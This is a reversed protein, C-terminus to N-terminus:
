SMDGILLEDIKEQPLDDWADLTRQRYQDMVEPTLSRWILLQRRLDNIFIRNARLWDGRTGTIRQILIRIEDIGEIESPQSLLAFHQNVGLDFPALAMTATVGIRESSAAQRFVHSESTAMIGLSTDSYNEFHEKLFNVVGTIDYASVTFPFILDYLDEEPKPIKWSRQIGPNASRSAKIAPYITSLLVTGMVVLITMIANTSSYNMTPVAVNAFTSVWSLVRAVTQGLLYGGMGGIIAYVAAEAFFLSAVHAPALGLSSFTYIERERDSVSGLMTAFIILGGLAMPILLDKLGSASIVTTFVFRFVEGHIGFYTPLRTVKAVRDAIAEVEAPDDPYITLSRVTAGVRKATEPGFIVVDDLGFVAFMGTEIEPPEKLGQDGGVQQPAIGEKGTSMEFDVPVVSSGELSKFGALDDSVTGAFILKQGALRVIAVGVDDPGFGLRKAIAETLFIGNEALLEFRSGPAFLERLHAQKEIDAPDIGIGAGIPVIRETTDNALLKDMSLGTKAAAQATQATPSMWYRPVVTAQGKLHGRLVEVVGADMANWFPDHIMMRPPMGTMPGKYSRRNDYSSGFSAFTLITFTLLVVTSATLFTRLPRRRMTSIGMMVAAAMTSIRSVDTSHVTQGLGQFAKVTSQLKRILLFIVLSSLLLIAFALFIIIPTTAIKFAPNVVYLIGFTGVFFGAFGAIQRYIHPSGILLREMCFAFPMALMLLLVVATVLDNMVTLLPPYVARSLAASVAANGAYSQLGAGEIGSAITDSLLDGAQGNIVELSEQYIRSDRLLQLRYTNLMGLDRASSEIVIPHSFEDALSGLPIGTGQYNAKTADNNLVVFSGSNFLKIGKAAVPAYVTMIQGAECVLRLTPAMAATQLAEMALTGGAAAFGYNVFTMSRAEFLTVQDSGITKENTIFRVVGPNDDDFSAALCRFGWRVRTSDFPGFECFGRSNTMAMLTGVFGPPTTLAQWGWTDYVTMVADPVPHQRMAHGASTRAVKPGKLRNNEWQVEFHRVRNPLNARGLLQDSDALIRFLPAIEAVQTFMTDLDLAATTDNVQGQRNLHDMVTMVSVNKIGFLRAMGSSDVGPGGFLAIDYQGSVAREDFHAVRSGLEEVTARVAKFVWEDYSSVTDKDLSSSRDGHIFTWFPREDALNLSVHLAVISQKVGLAENLRIAQVIDVDRLLLEKKRQQCANIVDRKLQGFVGQFRRDLEAPNIEWTDTEPDKLKGTLRELFAQRKAQQRAPDQQDILSDAIKKKKVFTIDRWDLEQQIIRLCTNWLLDEIEFENLADRAQDIAARLRLAEDSQAAIQKALKDREAAPTEVSTDKMEDHRRTLDAISTELAVLQRPLTGVLIRMPRLKELADSDAIRAQDKLLELTARHSSELGEIKKTLVDMRSRNQQTQRELQGRRKDFLAPDVFLGYVMAAALIVAGVTASRQAAQLPPKQDEDRQLVASLIIAIAALIITMAVFSWNRLIPGIKLILPIHVDKRMANRRQMLDHTDPKFVSEQNLIAIAYNQFEYEELVSNSRKELATGVAPATNADSDYRPRRIADYFARAGQHNVTQGDFFCLVVDRKPRNFAMYKALQLLAAANAADRAGPSLAPVESLSDIPAALLLAQDPKGPDSMNPATGKLVAIVNRGRLRHWKAGAFITGSVTTESAARHRLRIAQATEPPLYFLPLTAPVNLCYSMPRTAQLDGLVIVAKAGFAFPTQWDGDYDLVVIADQPSRNGYDELRGKSAYLLRGTLGDAPTVRAVVGNPRTAYLTHSKGDIVLRCETTKAQVVDFEQTFITFAKREGAPLSERIATLRNQIYQSALLSGPADAINDPDDLYAVVADTAEHFIDSVPRDPDDQTRTSEIRRAMEAIREESGFGALRHAYKTLAEVDRVFQAKDLTNRLTQAPAAGIAGGIVLLIVCIWWVRPRPM